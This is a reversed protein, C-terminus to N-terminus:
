LVVRYIIYIIAWLIFYVIGVLVYDLYQEDVPGDICEIINKIKQRLKKITNM